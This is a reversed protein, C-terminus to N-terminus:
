LMGLAKSEVSTSLARAQEDTMETVVKTRQEPTLKALDALSRVTGTPQTGGGPTQAGSGPAVTSRVLNENGALGLFLRVFTDADVVPEANPGGYMPKGDTDLYQAVFTGDAGETMQVRDRLLTVVQDPNMANNAVAAAKLANGRLLTTLQSQLSTIKTDKAEIQKLLPEQAKAVIGDVDGAKIAKDRTVADQDSRWETFAKLDEASPMADLKAQIAVVDAESKQARDLASTRRGIADDLESRKVMDDPKPDDSGAPAPPQPAADPKPPEQGPAAPPADDPAM